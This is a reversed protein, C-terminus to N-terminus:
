LKVWLFYFWYSVANGFMTVLFPCSALSSVYCKSAEYIEGKKFHDDGRQKMLLWDENSEERCAVKMIEETAQALNSPTTGQIFSAGGDLMSIEQTTLNWENQLASNSRDHRCFWAAFQRGEDELGSSHLAKTVWFAAKTTDLGLGFAILAYLLSLHYHSMNFECISLNTLLKSVQLMLGLAEQELNKGPKHGKKTQLLHELVAKNPARLGSDYCALALDPSHKICWNGLNKWDESNTPLPYDCVESPYDVRIGVSGDARLKYYPEIICLERGPSFDRSFTEKPYNYVAVEMVSGSLDEILFAGSSISWFGGSDAVRGFLVCGRHTTGLGLDMISIPNYTSPDFSSNHLFKKVDWSQTTTIYSMGQKKMKQLKAEDKKLMKWHERIGEQSTPDSETKTNMTKMREMVSNLEDPHMSNMMQMMRIPDPAGTFEIHGASGQM